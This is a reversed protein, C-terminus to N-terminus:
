THALLAFEGRAVAGQPDRRYGGQSSEEESVVAGNDVASHLRDLVREGDTIGLEAERDGRRQQPGSDAGHRGAADGVADPSNGDHLDRGGQEQQARHAGTKRRVDLQQDEEPHDAADSHSDRGQDGRGVDGFGGGRADTSPQAGQLM